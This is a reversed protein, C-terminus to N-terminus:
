LTFNKNETKTYTLTAKHYRNTDHLKSNAIVMTTTQTESDAVM